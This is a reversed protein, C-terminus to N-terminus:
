SASPIDICAVREIDSERDMPSESAMGTMTPMESATDNCSVTLDLVVIVIASVSPTFACTVFRDTCHLLLKSSVSPMASQVGKEHLGLNFKLSFRSRSSVSKKVEGGPRM